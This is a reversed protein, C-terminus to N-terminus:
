KTQGTTCGGCHNFSFPCRKQSLGHEIAKAVNKILDKASSLGHATFAFRIGNDSLIRANSPANQWHRMDRLNVYEAFYPDAVDYAKPFNLPVIVTGGLNKLERTYEYEDGGGLVAMTKGFQKGIKLARVANGNGGAEFFQPLGQQETLAELARDKTSSAGTQYWKLDYNLQRLLAMAGMLSTPYSQNSQVSKQFSFYAGSEADLIRNALSAKDDLIVTLGTGRAIGDAHHTNVVGIGAERLQKAEKEAYEFHDVAKVEPRIHDNWYFGERTPDYQPSRGGSSVSKPKKVGFTSFADIFSPYIFLGKANEIITNKPLKIGKGAAVVKGQHILLTADTVQTNPDIQITAGTFARYNSDITKVGENTPFYEQALGFGSCLLFCAFLINKM